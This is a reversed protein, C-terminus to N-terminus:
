QCVGINKHLQSIYKLIEVFKESENLDQDIYGNPLEVECKQPVKVIVERDVYITKPSCGSFSILILLPLVISLIKSKM